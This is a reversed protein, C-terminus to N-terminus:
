QFTTMDIEFVFADTIYERIDDPDDAYAQMLEALPIAIDTGSVHAPDGICARPRPDGEIDVYAQVYPHGIIGVGAKKEMDLLYTMPFQVVPTVVMQTLAVIQDVEAQILPIVVCSVDSFSLSDHQDLQIGKQEESVDASAARNKQETSIPKINDENHNM